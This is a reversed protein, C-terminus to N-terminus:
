EQQIEIDFFEELRVKVLRLRKENIRSQINENQTNTIGVDFVQTHKDNSNYIFQYINQKDHWICSYFSKEQQFIFDPRENKFVSFGGWTKPIPIGLLDVISPAIDLQNAFPPNVKRINTKNGTEFLILPIRIESPFVSQAHGVFGFEALGQGHDATIVVIANDLFGKQELIKMTQKLYADVQFVRNDYDNNLIESSVKTNFATTRNPKFISYATDAIGANHTSMFHFYFFAPKGDSNPIGALNDLVVAKDNNISAEPNTTLASVGDHFYEINNGYHKRLNYFNTHDGSVIFNIKYGQSWLLDHLFFKANLINYDSALINLVGNVSCSSTSFFHDVRVAHDTKVLSDLFPTTNRHYGYASTHDSRLADCIILIVNKKDFDQNKPYDTLAGAGDFGAYTITHGQALDYQMFSLVPDNYNLTDKIWGYSFFLIPFLLYLLSKPLLNKKTFFVSSKQQLDSLIKGSSAIIPIISILVASIIISLVASDPLPLKGSLNKLEFIYIRAIDFTLPYGWIQIGFHYGAYTLFLFLQGVIILTIILPGAIIKPFFRAFLLGTLYILLLGYGVLAIHVPISKGTLLDFQHYFFFIIFTSFVLNFIILHKIKM